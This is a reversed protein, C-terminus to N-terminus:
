STMLYVLAGPLLKIAASSPLLQVSGSSGPKARHLCSFLDRSSTLLQVSGPLYRASYICWSAVLERAKSETM